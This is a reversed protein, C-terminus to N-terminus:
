LGHKGAAEALVAHAEQLAYGQVQQEFSAFADGLLSRLVDRHTEVLDAADSDFEDLAKLLRAVVPRAQSLEVPGAAEPAADVIVPAFNPGLREIFEQLVVDLEDVLRLCTADDASEAIAKELVGGARQVSGAGLSGAVGKVTHALREATKRDATLAAAIRAAADAEQAVFQRLLRLYLKQNGAVRALGAAADLGDVIPLTEEAAPTRRPVDVPASRTSSSAAEAPQFYREAIEFLLGPDIPKSLHDNMGISLCRQREEVSAHATMAIIPLKGFREEARIRTAAEYGGMVPMQLDMFVLDFGTPNATLAEVAELGNNAVTVV